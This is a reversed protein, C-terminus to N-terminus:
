SSVLIEIRYRHKYPAIDGIEKIRMIKISRKCAKAEKKLSEIMEKKDDEHAFGHYFIKTGKKAVHLAEKLFSYKLNPRAMVIVDYKERLKLVVKRVDGQYVNINKIKNKEINMKAYKNCERGIEISDIKRPNSKKSIVVPYPGIGSFMCLVNDKKKIKKAIELRDGGMRPSFYCKSIDMFFICGSEKYEAIFTKEGAIHKIKFTRLRGKINEAKEVVTKINSKKLLDEAQKKVEKKRMGDTKIVAVNGIIDYNAM